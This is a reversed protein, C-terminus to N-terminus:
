FPLDQDDALGGVPPQYGGPPNPGEPRSPEAGRSGTPLLVIHNVIIEVATKKTGDKADYQRVDLRGEVLVQEGKHLYDRATEAQKGFAVCNHWTTRKGGQGDGEDTAISFKAKITGTQLVAAEPDRGLRGCLFVKNMTGMNNM